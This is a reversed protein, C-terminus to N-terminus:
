LVDVGMSKLSKIAGRKIQEHWWDIVRTWPEDSILGSKLAEYVEKAGDRVTYKCKFGLKKSIKTFDVVYSRADPDGYYEIIPEKGLAKFIEHALEVIQYNQDNSGVNFVENNVVDKPAEIVRIIASVVDKVHVVPRKQTGPRGVMIKGQKFLTLTMANVVLDFRMKPSYGYVTALRLITKVLSEIRLIGREALYKTKAYAELPNPQSTEDVVKDQFGYVSCTSTFIYKEVGMKSAIKATRIAALYNIEYFLEESSKGTPDPQSVAALDVVIDHGAVISPDYNRVDAKVVRLEEKDLVGTLGKDGFIMLDLVTVKYGRKLLESVLVSGIYGAGGTVLVRM